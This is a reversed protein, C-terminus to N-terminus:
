ITEQMEDILALMAKVCWQAGMNYIAIIINIMSISM